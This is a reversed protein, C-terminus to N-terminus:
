SNNSVSISILIGEFFVRLSQLTVSSDTYRPRRLKNFFIPKKPALATIPDAM